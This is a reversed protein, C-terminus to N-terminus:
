RTVASARNVEGQFEIGLICYKQPIGFMGGPQIYTIEVNAEQGTYNGTLASYQKLLLADGVKYGRDNKRFDCKKKGSVIDEFSAGVSKLEHIM